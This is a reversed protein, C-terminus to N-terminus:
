IGFGPQAVGVLLMEWALRSDEEQTREPAWGGPCLRCTGQQLSEPGRHATGSQTVQGKSTPSGSVEPTM